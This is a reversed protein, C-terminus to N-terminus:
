KEGTSGFSGASRSTKDLEEVEVIEPQVVAQILMQGIKNGKVVEFPKSGLNQVVIKIEGRYGSDIVGALMTIGHKVALGSKDWILGVYGFPIKMVIGTPVLVRSGADIICDEVAFLDMGADGTHAFNPLKAESNIKQIELKL